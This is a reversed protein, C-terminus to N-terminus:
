FALRRVARWASSYYDVGGVARADLCGASRFEVGCAQRAEGRRAKGQRAKGRPTEGHYVLRRANRSVRNSSPVGGVGAGAAAAGMGADGRLLGAVAVEGAARGRAGRVKSAVVVVVVAAVAAAAVSVLGDVGATQSPERAKLSSGRFRGPKSSSSSSSSVATARALRKM